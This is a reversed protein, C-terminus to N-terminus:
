WPLDDGLDIGPPGPHVNLGADYTWERANYMRWGQIRHTGDYILLQVFIALDDNIPASFIVMEGGTYFDFETHIDVGQVSSPISEAEFLDAVISNALADAEFFGVVLRAESSVLAKDNSAVVYTILSFVTLCLVAFVLIISASGVGIGGKNM